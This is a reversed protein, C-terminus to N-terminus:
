SPTVSAVASKASDGAANYATVQFDVTAKVPRNELVVQTGSTPNLSNM